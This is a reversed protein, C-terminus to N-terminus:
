APRRNSQKSAVGASLYTLLSRRWTYFTSRAVGNSKCLENVSSNERFSALVIEVKAVDNIKSKSM